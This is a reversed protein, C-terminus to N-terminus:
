RIAIAPISGASITKVLWLPFWETLLILGLGILVIEIGLVVCWQFVTIALDRMVYRALKFLLGPVM